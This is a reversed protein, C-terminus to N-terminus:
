GAVALNAAVLLAPGDPQHRLAEVALPRQPRHVHRREGAPPGRKCVEVAVAQIIRVARPVM